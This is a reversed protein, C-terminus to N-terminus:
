IFFEGYLSLITEEIEVLRDNIQLNAEELSVPEDEFVLISGNDFLTKNLTKPKIKQKLGSDLENIFCRTKGDPITKLFLLIKCSLDGFKIDQYLIYPKNYLKTASEEWGDNSYGSFMKLKTVM